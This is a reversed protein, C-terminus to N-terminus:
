QILARDSVNHSGNSVPSVCKILNSLHANLRLPIHAYALCLFRGFDCGMQAEEVSSFRWPVANVAM